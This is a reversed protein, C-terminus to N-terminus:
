EEGGALSRDVCAVLGKMEGENTGFANRYAVDTNTWHMEQARGDATLIKPIMLVGARSLPPLSALHYSRNIGANRTNGCRFGRGAVSRSNERNRWIPQTVM